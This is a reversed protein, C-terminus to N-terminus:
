KRFLVITGIPLLNGNVEEGTHVSGDPFRYYTSPYDWARGVVKYATRSKTIKGGNVYGVLVKTGKPLTRLEANPLDHGTRVRGDKFFYITTVSDYEDGAISYVGKSDIERFGEFTEEETDDKPPTVVLPSEEEKEIYAQAGYLIKKLYLDADVLRGARVDPDASFTNSLGLKQRIERTAFLMACRKRGRHSRAHWKDPAGYAIMSHTVVAKDSLKYLTQLKTLLAKIAVLQQDTPRKNHYGVVEIGISFNSVNTRNEWMSRGAHKAIRNHRVIIHITGNTTVLYNCTGQRCVCSLASKDNGETTHLVILRTTSRVPRKEDWKSLNQQYKQATVSSSILVVLLFLINKM